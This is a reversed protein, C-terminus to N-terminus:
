PEGFHEVDFDDKFIVGGRRAGFEYAGYDYPTPAGPSSAPRVAGPLDVEPVFESGSADWRNIAQSGQQLSYDYQGPNAFLPDATAQINDAAMNGLGHGNGVLLNHVMAGAGNTAAMVPVGPQFVISNHLQLDGPSERVAFVSPVLRINNAVTSNSVHLPGTGQYILPSQGADNDALVSNDIYVSGGGFSDILGGGNLAINGVMHGREMVFQALGQAGQEVVITAWANARNAEIRNCRRAAPCARVGDTTGAHMRLSAQGYAGPVGSGYLYIAGGDAATNESLITNFLTSRAANSTTGSASARQYIAGGFRATNYAFVIPASGLTNGISLERNGSAFNGFYIAGGMSAATNGEMFGSNGPVLSRITVDSGIAYLAGGGDLIDTGDARNGAFYNMADGGITVSSQTVFLGGGRRAAINSNFGVGLLNVEKLQRIGTGVYMGGGLEARNNHILSRQITIAGSGTSLVGGGAIATSAVGAAFGNRITLDALTLRGAGRHHLVPGTPNAGQGDLVSVGARVLNACDVFGGEIAVDDADDVVLRQAAYDGIALRVIDLGPAAAAAAIASQLIHYDCNPDGPQGVTIVAAPAPPAFFGACLIVGTAFRRGPRRVASRTNM